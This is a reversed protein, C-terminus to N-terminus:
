YIQERRPLILFRPAVMASVGLNDHASASNFSNIPCSSDIRLSNLDPRINSLGLFSHIAFMEAWTDANAFVSPPSSNRPIDSSLFDLGGTAALM